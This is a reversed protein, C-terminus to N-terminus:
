FPLLGLLLRYVFNPRRIADGVIGKGNIRVEMQALLDSRIINSPSIDNWRAVGRITVLQKESNVEVEKTGEVVLYGNPLVHTVRASLNTSISTQRSTAGQGDLESASEVKALNPWPGTPNTVGSLATVSAKASSKRSSKSNGTTVASAEENVLITVLDNVYRARLDRAMRNFTEALRGFEAGRPVAVRVDLDGQALREAGETLSALHRTMRRSVPLVGLLALTIMGAGFALNRAATRRIEQLAAGVPRAVGVSIGSASDRRMVVVWDQRNPTSLGGPAAPVLGLGQVKPLDDPDTTYIQNATDIAFPISGQQREPTSVVSHLVQRMESQEASALADRRATEYASPEAGDSTRERMRRIRDGLERVVEETQSSMQEALAGAEAEVAKRFARQSAIYSYVSVGTLPV